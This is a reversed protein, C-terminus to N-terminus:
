PGRAWKQLRLGLEAEAGELTPASFPVGGKKFTLLWNLLTRSSSSAPGASEGGVSGPFCLGVCPSSCRATVLSGKLPRDKYVASFPFNLALTAEWSCTVGLQLPPHPCASPLQTEPPRCREVEGASECPIGPNGSEYRARLCPQSLLKSIRGKDM